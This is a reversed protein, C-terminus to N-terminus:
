LAEGIACNQVEDSMHTGDCYPAMQTQKCGCLFVTESEVPDIRMPKMGTGKHSGDCRPQKKSLGCTCWPYRKGAEFEIMYPEKACVIPLKQDFRVMSTTICRRSLLSATLQKLSRLRYAM